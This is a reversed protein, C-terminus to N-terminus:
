TTGTMVLRNRCETNGKRSATVPSKKWSEFRESLETWAQVNPHAKVVFKEPVAGHTKTGITIETVQTASTGTRPIEKFFARCRGARIEDAM